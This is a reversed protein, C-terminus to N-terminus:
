SMKFHKEGRMNNKIKFSALRRSEVVNYGTKFFYNAQRKAGEEFNSYNMCDPSNDNLLDFTDM